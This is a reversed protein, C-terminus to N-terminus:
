ADELDACRTCYGSRKVPHDKCGTFPPAVDECEEVPAPPAKRPPATLRLGPLDSAERTTAPPTVPTAVPAKRAPPRPAKKPVTAAVPPAPSAEVPATSAKVRRYAPTNKPWHAPWYDAPMEAVIERWPRKDFHPAGCEGLWYSRDRGVPGNDRPKATRDCVEGLGTALLTALLPFM